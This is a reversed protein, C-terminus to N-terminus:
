LAPMRSLVSEGGASASFPGSHLKAVLFTVNVEKLCFISRIVEKQSHISFCEDKFCPEWDKKKKKQRIYGQLLHAVSAKSNIKFHFTNLVMLQM